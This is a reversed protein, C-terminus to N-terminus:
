NTVLGNILGHSRAPLLIVIQYPLIGESNKIEKREIQLYLNYALYPKELALKQELNTRMCGGGHAVPGFVQTVSWLRINVGCGEVVLERLCCGINSNTEYNPIGIAREDSQFRTFLLSRLAHRNPLIPRLKELTLNLSDFIIM